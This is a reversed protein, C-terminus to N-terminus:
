FYYIRFHHHNKGFSYSLSHYSYGAFCCSLSRYSCVPPVSYCLRKRTAISNAWDWDFPGLQLASLPNESYHYPFHFSFKGCRCHCYCISLYLLYYQCYLSADLCCWNAYRTLHIWGPRASNGRFGALVSSSHVNLLHLLRLQCYPFLVFIFYFRYKPLSAPDTLRLRNWSKRELSDM